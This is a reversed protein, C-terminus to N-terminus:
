DFVALTLLSLILRSDLNEIYMIIKIRINKLDFYLYFNQKKKGGRLLVV